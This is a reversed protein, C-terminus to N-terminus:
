PVFVGTNSKNWRMSGWDIGSKLGETGFVFVIGSRTVVAVDVDHDGDIDGAAASAQVWQGVYKPWGSPESGNLRFAHVFGEGNGIVIEPKGDGTVDALVPATLFTWDEILRPFAPVYAGTEANWASLLHQFQIGQGDHISAGFLRTDVSPSVLEPKGDGDLDGFTLNGAAARADGATVQPDKSSGFM